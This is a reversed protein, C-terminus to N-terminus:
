PPRSFSFGDAWRMSLHCKLELACAIGFLGGGGCVLLPSSIPLRGVEHLAHGCEPVIHPKEGPL